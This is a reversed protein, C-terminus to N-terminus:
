EVRLFRGTWYDFYRTEAITKPWKSRYVNVAVENTKDPSRHLVWAGAPVSRQVISCLGPASQESAPRDPLWLRCEGPSPIEDAPIGLSSPATVVSAPAVSAAPARSGTAAMTAPAVKAPSAERSASASATSQTPPPTPKSTLKSMLPSLTCGGLFVLCGLSAAALIRMIKEMPCPFSRLIIGSSKGHLGAQVRTWVPENM